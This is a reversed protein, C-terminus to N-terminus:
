MSPIPCDPPHEVVTQHSDHDWMFTSYTGRTMIGADDEKDKAWQSISILNKAAGPLYIVNDLTIIHDKGDVDLIHFRITGIGKAASSGAIGNVHIGSSIDELKVFLNKDGCIHHTACNDLGFHYTELSFDSNSNTIKDTGDMVSSSLAGVPPMATMCCSPRDVLEICRHRLMHCGGGCCSNIHDFSFDMVNDVPFQGNMFEIAQSQIWCSVLLMYQLTRFGRCSYVESSVGMSYVFLEVGRMGLGHFVSFLRGSHVGLKSLWGVFSQCLQVCSLM